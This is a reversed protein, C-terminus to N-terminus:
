SHLLKSIKETLELMHRPIDIHQPCHQACQGCGVCSKPQRDGPAELIPDLAAKSASLLYENYAKLFVPINLEMPCGSCYGCGTCPITFQKRFLATAHDLAQRESATLPEERSLTDLNDQLQELSSMGSLIVQINPLESVFRLAWSAISRDPRAELLIADAEPSLSSLRGGRVPEMVMIPINRQTLIEYQTKANQFEWDFYNLQIQAFDWSRLDAFRRLTEPTGHSSFGLYRIKGQRQMEELFPIVGLKEDLFVDITDESVNHCLYFDFHDVGCRDLEEQFIRPADEPHHLLWPPMKDALFYSDRPYKSLARCLFRESAGGGYVYATDFYNVGRQFCLDIIAQAKEEDIQTCDGGLNPLRMCGMGLLSTSLGTNRYTRYRM